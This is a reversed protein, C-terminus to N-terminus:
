VFVGDKIDRVNAKERSTGAHRVGNDEGKDGWFLAGEKGGGWDDVLDALTQL